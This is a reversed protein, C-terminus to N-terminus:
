LAIELQNRTARHAPCAILYHHVTKDRMHCVPCKPSNVKGIRHLHKQLPVHGMKLQVLLSVQVQLLNQTIKRFRSLPM